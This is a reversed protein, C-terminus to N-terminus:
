HGSFALWGVAVILGLMVAIWLLLKPNSQPARAVEAIGIPATEAGSEAVDVSTAVISEPAAESIPESKAVAAIPVMVVAPGRMMAQAARDRQRRKDFM